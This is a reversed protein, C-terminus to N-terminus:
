RFLKNYAFLIRWMKRIGTRATAATATVIAAVKISIIGVRGRMSGPFVGGPEGVGSAGPPPPDGLMAVLGTAAAATAKTGAPKVATATNGGKSVGLVKGAIATINESSGVLRM